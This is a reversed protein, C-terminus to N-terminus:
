ASKVALARRATFSWRGSTSDNERCPVVKESLLYSTGCRDSIVDGEILLRQDNKECQNEPLYIM